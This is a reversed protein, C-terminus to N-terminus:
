IKVAEVNYHLINYFVFSAGAFSRSVPTTFVHAQLELVDMLFFYFWWGLVGVWDAGDARPCGVM